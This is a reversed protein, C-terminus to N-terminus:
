EWGATFLRQSVIVAILPVFNWPIAPLTVINNLWTQKTVCYIDKLYKHLGDNVVGLTQWFQLNQKIGSRTFISKRGVFSPITIVGAESADVRDDVYKPMLLQKWSINIGWDTIYSITLINWSGRPDLHRFLSKTHWVITHATGSFFSYAPPPPFNQYPYHRSFNQYPYHRSYLYM